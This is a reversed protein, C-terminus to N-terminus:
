LLFRVAGTLRFDQGTMVFFRFPFARIAAQPLALRVAGIACASIVASICARQVYAARRYIEIRGAPVGYGCGFSAIEDLRLKSKM